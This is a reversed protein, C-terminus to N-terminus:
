CLLNFKASVMVAGVKDGCRSYADVAFGAAQEHQVFTSKFDGKEVERLYASDIVHSIAGGQVYWAKDVGNKILLEIILDSSKM